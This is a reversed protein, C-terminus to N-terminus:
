SSALGQRSAFARGAGGRETECQVVSSSHQYMMMSMWGFHSAAAVGDGSGQAGLARRNHVALETRGPRSFEDTNTTGSSFDLRGHCHAPGCLVCQWAVGGRSRAIRAARARPLNHAAAGDACHANAAVTRLVLLLAEKAEPFAAAAAAAGAM